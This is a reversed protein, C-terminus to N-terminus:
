DREQCCHASRCRERSGHRSRCSTAHELELEHQQAIRRNPLTGQHQTEHAPLEKLILLRGDTRCEQRLRHGEVVRRDLKLDPISCPLLAIMRQRRHIVPTSSSRYDHVVDCIPVRKLARLLPNLLQLPLTVRVNHNRQGAVLRVQARLALHLWLLGLRICAVVADEEHLRTRLRGGVHVLQEDRYRALEWLVCRLWTWTGCANHHSRIPVRRFSLLTAASPSRQQSGQRMPTMPCAKHSIYSAAGERSRAPRKAQAAMRNASGPM